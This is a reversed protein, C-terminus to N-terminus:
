QSICIENMDGRDKHCGKKRRRGALKKTLFIGFITTFIAVYVWFPLNLARGIWALLYFRPLRGMFVSLVYKRASYGTTVTLVRFPIFPVPALCAFLLSPFALKSFYHESRQYSQNERVGKIKKSDLIFSLAHYNVLEIMSVAVGACIAVLWPSYRNGYLLIVPEHPVIPIFTTTLMTLGFLYILGRYVPLLFSVLFAIVAFLMILAVYAGSSHRDFLIM